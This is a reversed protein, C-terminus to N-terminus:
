KTVIFQGKWGSYLKKLTKCRLIANTGNLKDFMLMSCGQNKFYIKWTRDNWKKGHHKQPNNVQNQIRCYKPM